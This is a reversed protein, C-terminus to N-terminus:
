DTPNLDHAFESRGFVNVSGAAVVLRKDCSFKGKAAPKEDVPSRITFIAICSVSLM